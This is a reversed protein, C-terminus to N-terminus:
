PSTECNTIGDGCSSTFKIGSPDPAQAETAAYANNFASSLSYSRFRSFRKGASTLYRGNRDTGFWGIYFKPDCAAQSNCNGIPIGCTSDVCPSCSGLCGDDWELKSVRGGDLTVILTWFPVIYNDSDEDQPRRHKAESAVGSFEIQFWQSPWDFAGLREPPTTLQLLSFDEVV